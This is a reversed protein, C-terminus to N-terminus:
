SRQLESFFVTVKALFKPTSPARSNGTKEENEACSNEIRKGIGGAKENPSRQDEEADGSGAKGEESPQATHGEVATGISACLPNILIISARITVRAIRRSVLGILLSLNL